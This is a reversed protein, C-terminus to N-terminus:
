SLIVQPGGEEALKQKAEEIDETWDLHRYGEGRSDTQIWNLLDDWLDPTWTTDIQATTYVGEELRSFGFVDKISSKEASVACIEAMHPPIFLVGSISAFVVDGPLCVAGGIKTPGNMSIMTIDAIGTPDEGRHYVQLNPIDVIQEMDRIGGWIIAGGRKTKTAIATSLNGGVYTGQFIKDFMDVVIVDDEVLTDIVWQNYNGRRGEEKHGYNMLIDQLDPRLPVLTSTVARGILKQGPKTTQFGSVFQYKYGAKWLAGWAEELTMKRLRNLIDDSVKPRGDPFREGEWKSTIHVIDDYASFKM